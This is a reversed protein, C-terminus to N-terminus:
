RVYEWDIFTSPLITRFLTERDVFKLSMIVLAKVTNGIGEQELRLTARECINLISSIMRVRSDSMNLQM